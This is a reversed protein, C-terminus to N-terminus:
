KQDLRNNKTGIEYMKGDANIQLVVVLFNRSEHRGRDADPVRLKM